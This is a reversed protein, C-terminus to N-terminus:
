GDHGAGEGTMGARAALAEEIRAALGIGGRAALDAALARALFSAMQGEGLGGGGPGERPRALGAHNLMEALFAAEFEQAVRALAARESGTEAAPPAPRLTGPMSSQLMFAAVPDTM